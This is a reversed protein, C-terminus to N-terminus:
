LVKLHGTVQDVRSAPAPGVALVTRSGAAIQTRGADQIVYHPLGAKKAAKALDLMEAESEVRLAVKKSGITRWADLWDGWEADRSGEKAEFLRDNVLDVAAVAAHACQASLKGTSMKLDKRVVLTMKMEEAAIATTRVANAVRAAQQGRFSGRFFLFTFAVGGVFSVLVTGLYTSLSWPAVGSPTFQQM